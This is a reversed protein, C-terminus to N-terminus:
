LRCLVEETHEGLEPASRRLTPEDVSQKIPFGLIKMKGARAGDPAMVMERHRIQPDDLAAVVDLVPGAPVGADNLRELWSETTRGELRAQVEARIEDRHRVRADNTAFRPDDFLHRCDLLSFLRDVIQDNSAAIAVHGDSTEFLGYPAVLPHDNGVRPLAQGTAFVETAMYALMSVMSDTMAIDISKFTRSETPVALAATCGLAAYLGAVLDSIPLGSRLPPAGDEGNTWMFGSMAQAVFDFSPRAAYPGTQGFGSIHCVILLPNLMELDADSLGMKAMTGPKFNEVLMDAGAILKKLVAMGDPTRLDLVVSRKNRNFSAFYASMGDIKSGQARLPDGKPGEVKIVDAGLDALQQTCFPGSIVRTLDIVRTGHLSM